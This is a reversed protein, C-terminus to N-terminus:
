AAGHAAALVRTIFPAKAETYAHKNEVYQVALSRKLAAYEALVDPAERLMDRFAIHQNWLRGERTVCHLHVRPTTAEARVFYRREPLQDEYESRYTYGLSTLSEQREEAERLNRVGVLIDLVPKACLGPVATSGIHEVAVDNAVFVSLLEVAVKQFQSPWIDQYELLHLRSM